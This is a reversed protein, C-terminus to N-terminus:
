DSVFFTFLIIPITIIDDNYLLMSISCLLIDSTHRIGTTPHGPAIKIFSSM